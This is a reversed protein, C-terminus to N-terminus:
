IQGVGATESATRAEILGAKRNEKLRYSEGKITIIHAHHLLRDLLAATLAASRAEGRRPWGEPTKGEGDDRSGPADGSRRRTRAAFIRAPSLSEFGRLAKSVRVGKAPIYESRHNDVGM